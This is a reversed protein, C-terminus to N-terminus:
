KRAKGNGIAWVYKPTVGYRAALASVGRRKKYRQEIESFELNTLKAGSASEGRHTLGKKVADQKNDKHTGLFLHNPNCCAPNDCSHCVLLGKPIPGRHLEWSFRHPLVTKWHSVSFKGYGGGHGKPQRQIWGIWNWCDLPGKRDVRKWFAEVTQDYTNRSRSMMTFKSKRSRCLGNSGPTISNGKM